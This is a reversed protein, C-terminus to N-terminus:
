EGKIIKKLKQKKSRDKGTGMENLLLLCTLFYLIQKKTSNFFQQKDM